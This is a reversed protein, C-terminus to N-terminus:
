CECGLEQEAEILLQLLDQIMGRRVLWLQKTVFGDQDAARGRRQLELTLSAQCGGPACSVTYSKSASGPGARRRM